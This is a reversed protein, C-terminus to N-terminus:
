GGLINSFMAVETMAPIIGDDHTNLGDLSRLWPLIPGKLSNGDSAGALAPSSQVGLHSHVDIISYAM